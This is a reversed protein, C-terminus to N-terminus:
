GTPMRAEIEVKGYRVSVKHKTIMRASMVPNIISGTTINSVAACQTVNTSTCGANTLNLNYGDTISAEGLIDSTLTPVIYLTDDDVFSNNSNDTTWEFQNNGYGDLRVEHSWYDANIGNSFDDHM